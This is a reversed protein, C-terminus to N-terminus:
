ATEIRKCGHRVSHFLPRLNIVKPFAALLADSVPAEIGKSGGLELVKGGDEHAIEERGDRSWGRFFSVLLDRAAGLGRASPMVYIANL